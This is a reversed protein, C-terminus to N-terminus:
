EHKVLLTSSKWSLDQLSMLYLIARKSQSSTAHLVLDHLSYDMCYQDYTGGQPFTNSEEKEFLCM